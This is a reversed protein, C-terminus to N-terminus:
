MILTARQPRTVKPVHTHTPRAIRAYRAPPSGARSYSALYPAGAVTDAHAARPPTPPRPVPASQEDGERCPPLPATERARADKREKLGRAAWNQRSFQPRM